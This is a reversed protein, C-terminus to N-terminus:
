LLWPNGGNYPCCPIMVERIGREGCSTPWATLAASSPLCSPGVAPPSSPAAAAYGDIILEFAGLYGSASRVTGKALPYETVRPPLVAGADKILVTLDLHEKLLQAAELAREDSGYLLASGESSLSVYPVDAMPEAAAALLAAMKPGADKADKSWGATERINVFTLERKGPVEAAAETFIPAEQTCAVTIADGSAAAKRFRELESRCFQRGEVVDANKCARRVAAGDLPMTDECTCILVKRPREAM